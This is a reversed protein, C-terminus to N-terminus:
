HSLLRQARLAAVFGAVDRAVVELPEGTDRSLSDIISEVSDGRELGQWVYAGTSNLTAISGLQTDLVAAGDQNAITRLHYNDNM